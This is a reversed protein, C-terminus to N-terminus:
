EAPTMLDAVVGLHDSPLVGGVPEGGVLWVRTPNGVPKSQGAVPVPRPTAKREAETRPEKAM